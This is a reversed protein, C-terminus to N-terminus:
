TVLWSINIIIDCINNQLLTGFSYIISLNYSFTLRIKWSEDESLKKTYYKFFNKM